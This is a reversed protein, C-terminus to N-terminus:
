FCRCRLNKELLTALKWGAVENFFLNQHLQKGTFRAFSKIVCIKYFMKSCRSKFLFKVLLFAERHTNKVNKFNLKHYWIKCHYYWLFHYIIIHLHYICVFFNIFFISKQIWWFTDKLRFSCLSSSKECVFIWLKYVRYGASRSFHGFVSNNRTRIKRYTFFDGYETRICSFVSWFYTRM